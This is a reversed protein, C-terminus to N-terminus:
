RAAEPSDADFHDLRDKDAEWTKVTNYIVAPIPVTFPEGHIQEVAFSSPSSSSSASGM